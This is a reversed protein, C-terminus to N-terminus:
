QSQELLHYTRVVRERWWQQEDRTVKLVAAKLLDRDPVQRVASVKSNMPIVPKAVVEDKFLLGTGFGHAFNPNLRSALEIGQIIGISTDLSGSVVIPITIQNAIDLASQIGGLPIAKLIAFDAYDALEDLNEFNSLRISEDAALPISTHTRLQKFEALTRVPQELYQINDRYTELAEANKMADPLSWTGNADLRLIFDPSVSLIAKIREIDSEIDDSCKVKIVNLGYIHLYESVLERTAEVNLIPVIGNSQIASGSVKVDSFGFELAAHLWRAAIEDSYEVFPAFESWGYPGEILVGVRRKISRFESKLDLAFVHSSALVDDLPPLSLM